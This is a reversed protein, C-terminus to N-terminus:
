NNKDLEVNKNRNKRIKKYFKDKESIYERMTQEETAIMEKITALDDTLNRIQRQLMKNEYSTPNFNKSHKMSYFLQNLGALRSKIDDRRNRYYKITARHMAIQLGTKDNCMDMDDDHCNACGVFVGYTNHLAVTALGKEPVWTTEIFPKMHM